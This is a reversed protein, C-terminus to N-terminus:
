GVDDMAMEGGLKPVASNGDDVGFGLDLLSICEEPVFGMLMGSLNTVGKKIVPCLVKQVGPL